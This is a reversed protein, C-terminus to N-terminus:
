DPTTSTHSTLSTHFTSHKLRRPALTQKSSVLDPKNLRITEPTKHSRPQEFNNKPFEERFDHQKQRSKIM